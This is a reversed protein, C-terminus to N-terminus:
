GRLSFSLADAGNSDRRYIYIVLINALDKMLVVPRTLTDAIRWPIKMNEEDASFDVPFTLNKSTFFPKPKM